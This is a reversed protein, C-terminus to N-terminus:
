GPDGDKVVVGLLRILSIAQVPDLIAGRISDADVKLGEITSGRLDAGLLRARSFDCGSLDCDKFSAGSLDAGSFDAEVLECREFRAVRFSGFRFGAFSAKCDAFLLDHYEADPSSLGTLRCGLLELRNAFLGPLSANALDCDVLRVDILRLRTISSRNLAVRNLVSREITLSRATGGALASLTLQVSELSEIDSLEVATLQRVALNAAIRPPQIKPSPRRTEGPLGVVASDSDAAPKGLGPIPNRQRRETVRKVM